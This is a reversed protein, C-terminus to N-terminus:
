GLPSGGDLLFCSTSKSVVPIAALPLLRLVITQQAAPHISPHAIVTIMRLRLRLGPLRTLAVANHMETLLVAVALHSGQARESAKAVGCRGAAVGFVEADKSQGSPQMGADLPGAISCRNAQGRATNVERQPIMALCRMLTGSSFVEGVGLGMVHEGLCSGM